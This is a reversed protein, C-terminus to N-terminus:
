HNKIIIKTQITHEPIAFSCFITTTENKKTECVYTNKVNKTLELQKM